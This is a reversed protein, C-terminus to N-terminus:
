NRHLQFVPQTEQDRLQQPLKKPLAKKKEKNTKTYFNWSKPGVMCYPSIRGHHQEGIGPKGCKFHFPM